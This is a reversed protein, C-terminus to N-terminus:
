QGLGMFGTRPWVALCALHQRTNIWCGGLEKMLSDNKVVPFCVKALPWKHGIINLRWLFGGEAVAVDPVM